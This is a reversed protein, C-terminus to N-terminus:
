GGEPLVPVWIHDYHSEIMGLLANMEEGLAEFTANWVDDINDWESHLLALKWNNPGGHVHGLTVWGVLKGDAMAQDLAPKWMEEFAGSWKALNAPNIYFEAEYMYNTTASEPVNVDMVEWIQDRHAGMMAQLKEMAEAPMSEGMRRNFDSLATQISEFDFYRMAFRWNYEGGTDHQWAAFGEITGAETMVTLIPAIHELYIENWVLMDGYNMKYVSERIFRLEQAQAPAPATLSLVVAAVAPYLLKKM